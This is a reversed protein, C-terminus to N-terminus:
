LGWDALAEDLRKKPFCQLESDPSANVVSVGLRKISPMANQFGKKWRNFNSGVPNSAMPWTNRGYWHAGGRDHMDFGVLILDTVGFQLALNVAQFGSCGGNGVRMPEDMLMEDKSIDIDVKQLDPWRNSAQGGHYIKIGGFEPLGKKDLWWPADCGYCVEAWPCLEVAKKIAVVHIRDKLLSLDTKKVTPGGAVVAACEETWNPWWPYKAIAEETVKRM